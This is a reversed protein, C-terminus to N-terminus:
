RNNPFAGADWLYVSGDECGSAYINNRMEDQQGPYPALGYVEASQGEVLVRPDVDIEWIDNQSSGAIFKEVSPDPDCDIATYQPPDDSDAINELVGAEGFDHDPVLGGAAARPDPALGEEEELDAPEKISWYMVKGDGGASMLTTHAEGEEVPKM